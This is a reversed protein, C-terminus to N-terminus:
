KRIINAGKVAGSIIVNKEIVLRGTGSEFTIDGLVQTGGGLNVTQTDVSKDRKIVLSRLKCRDFSMENSLVIVDAFSSERAFFGGKVYTNDKAVFHMVDFTGQISAPGSVTINSGTVPGIITLAGSTTVDSLSSPGIVNISKATIQKMDAVGTIKLDDYTKGELSIFGTMSQANAIGTMAIGTAMFAIVGIKKLPHSQSFSFM